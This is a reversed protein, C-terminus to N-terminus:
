SAEEKRVIVFAVAQTPAMVNYEDYVLTDITEGTTETWEGYRDPKYFYRVLEPKPALHAIRAQDYVRYGRHICAEGAPLTIYLRGGPKLATMLKDVTLKDGDPHPPDGYDNLGVHEITSVSVVADFKAPEPDWTLIDAQIFSFNAHAFPYPRFDLGTVKYGLACLHLPLLDEVCGFDLISGGPALDLHQFFIPYEIGRESIVPRVERQPLFRSLLSVAKRVLIHLPSWKTIDEFLINKNREYMQALKYDM